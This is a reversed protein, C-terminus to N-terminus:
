LNGSLLVWFLLPNARQQRIISYNPSIVETLLSKKNLLNVGKISIQFYKNFRYAASCQLDVFNSNQYKFWVTSAGIYMKKKWDFRAGIEFKKFAATTSLPQNAQIFSSYNSEFRAKFKFPIKFSTVIDSSFLRMKYTTGRFHGNVINGSETSIVDFSASLTSKILSVYSKALVNGGQSSVPQSFYPRLITLEPAFHANYSMDNNASQRWYKVDLDGVYLNKYGISLEGRLKTSARLETSPLKLLAFDQVVSDVLYKWDPLRSDVRGALSIELHRAISYTSRMEAKLLPKAVFYKKLRDSISNSGILADMKVRLKNTVVIEHQGCDIFLGDNRISVIPVFNYQSSLVNISGAGTSFYNISFNSLKSERKLLRLQSIFKDEEIKVLQSMQSNASISLLRNTIFDSESQWQEKSGFVYLRIASNPNLLFVTNSFVSATFSSFLKTQRATDVIGQSSLNNLLNEQRVFNLNVKTASAVRSANDFSIKLDTNFYNLSNEELRKEGVTWSTASDILYKSFNEVYNEKSYRGFDVKQNFVISKAKISNTYSINNYRQFNILEENVLQNANISNHADKKFSSWYDKFNGLEIPIRDYYVYIKSLGNDSKAFLLSKIKSSIYILGIESYYRENVSGGIEFPVTAKNRISSDMSINLAVDGTRILKSEISNAAYNNIFQIDAVVNANLNRVIAAYDGDTANVNDILLTKIIKGKYSLRGDDELKVGKIKLLLNQLKKTAGDTLKSVKYTITDKDGINKSDSAVTIGPLQKIEYHLPVNIALSSTDNSNFLFTTDFIKYNLHTVRLTAELGSELGNLELKYTGGPKSFCFAKSSNNQMVVVTASLVPKGSSKDNVTGSIYRQANSSLM